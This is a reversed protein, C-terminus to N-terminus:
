LLKRRRERTKRSGEIIKKMKGMLKGRSERKGIARWSKMTFRMMKRSCEMNKRDNDM